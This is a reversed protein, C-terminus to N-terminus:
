SRTVLDQLRQVTGTPHQLFQPCSSTCGPPGASSQPGRVQWFMPPHLASRQLVHSTTSMPCLPDPVGPHQGLQLLACASSLQGAGILEWLSGPSILVAQLCRLVCTGHFLWKFTGKEGEGSRGSSHPCGMNSRAASSCSGRTRSHSAPPLPGLLRPPRLRRTRPPRSVKHFTGLLVAEQRFGRDELVAKPFRKVDRQYGTGPVLVPCCLADSCSLGLPPPHLPTVLHKLPRASPFGLSPPLPM